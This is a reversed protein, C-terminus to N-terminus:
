GLFGTGRYRRQLHLGCRSNMQVIIDSKRQVEIDAAQAVLADICDGDDAIVLHILCHPQLGVFCRRERAKQFRLEAVRDGAVWPDGFDRSHPKEILILVRLLLSVSNSIKTM